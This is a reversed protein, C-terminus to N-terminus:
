WGKKAKLKKKLKKLTKQKVILLLLAKYGPTVHLHSGIVDAAIEEYEPKGRILKLCEEVTLSGENGITMPLRVDLFDYQQNLKVKLEMRYQPNVVPWSQELVGADWDHSDSSPAVSQMGAWMESAMLPAFPALMIVADALAREFM